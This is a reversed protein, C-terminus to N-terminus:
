YTLYSLHNHLRIFLRECLGQEYMLQWRGYSRKCFYSALSFLYPM